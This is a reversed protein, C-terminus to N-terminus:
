LVIELETLCLSRPVLLIVQDDPYLLLGDPPMFAVSPVWKQPSHELMRRLGVVTIDHTQLRQNLKVYTITHTPSSRVDSCASSGSSALTSWIFPSKDLDLTAWFSTGPISRPFLFTNLNHYTSSNHILYYGLDMYIGEGATLPGWYELFREKPNHRFNEIAKEWRRFIASSTFRILPARPNLTRVQHSLAHLTVPIEPHTDDVWHFAVIARAQVVNARQLNILHHPIGRVIYVQGLARLRKRLASKLSLDTILVVPLQPQNHAVRAQRIFPMVQRSIQGLYDCIVLHGNCPLPNIMDIDDDAYGMGVPEPSSEITKESSPEPIEMTTHLMQTTESNPAVTSKDSDSLKDTFGTDTSGKRAMPLLSFNQFNSRVHSSLLLPIRSQRLEPHVPNLVFHTFLKDPSIKRSSHIFNVPFSSSVTDATNAPGLRLKAGLYVTSSSQAWKTLHDQYAEDNSDRFGPMFLSGQNLSFLSIAHGLPDKWSDPSSSTITMVTKHFHKMFHEKLTTGFLMTLTSFGFAATNHVFLSTFVDDFCVVPTQPSVKRALELSEHLVVQIKVADAPVCPRHHQNWESFRRGLQLNREDQRQVNEVTDKLSANYDALIYVRNSLRGVQGLVHDNMEQYQYFHVMTAWPQCKLFAELEPELPKNDLLLLPNTPSVFTAFLKQPMTLMAMVSNSTLHGTAIFAFLRQDMTYQHVLLDLKDRKRRLTQYAESLKSFEDPVTLFVALILCIVVLRSVISDFILDDTPGNILCLCIYYMTDFFNFELPESPYINYVLVHLLTSVALWHCALAVSTNILQMFFPEYKPNMRQLRALMRRISNTFLYFRAVYGIAVYSVGLLSGRISPIVTYLLAGLYGSGLACIIISNTLWPSWIKAVFCRMYYYIGLLVACAFDMAVLYVPFPERPSLAIGVLLFVLFIFQLSVEMWSFILTGLYTEYLMWRWVNFDDVYKDIDMKEGGENPKESSGPTCSKPPPAPTAHAPVEVYAPQRGYEALRSVTDATPHHPRRATLTSPSTPTPQY